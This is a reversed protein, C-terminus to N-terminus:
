SNAFFEELRKHMAEYDFNDARERLWRVLDDGKEYRFRELEELIEDTGTLSFEDAAASLRSLLERDPEERVEKEEPAKGADWEDLLEKLRGILEMVRRWLEGHRSQVVDLKGAKSALELERALAATEGACVANCAGKLGHVEIAYEGLSTELHTDMKELLSPSNDVFSKLIPLYTATSNGYLALAAEFDVGEVPHELLWRNGAEAKVEAGDGSSDPERTRNEEIQKDRVWQKLVMDLRKIDIPKSIFDNFGNALFIERNGAIANATLAVIPAERAYESGIEERIIRTTEMGDMEPMMHDMFVVDYREGRRIAEVAERGRLMTEVKLGYPMLLGTMVDLNTQLDDVVLVKGYPMWSRVFGNGCNRDREATFRLNMLNEVTERGIEGEEVIGQPLRVRFVSGKGYESAAEIEGGMRDVLGKAISLGLGTGEIKRNADGEFQVYELFVKEIDQKKIGRGTDEVTFKLWADEGAREWGITFRIEGKETYKFANSLLNTLIQKVRVEDGYLKSPITEDIDLKFEIPKSGMRTTNLQITDNILSSFEYAVPFIEFNGSEIKSIDLIDNVIELLLVGSSHIKELNLRTDGPIENQLEVESLGLIANLPTRIEHSVASLFKTKSINEQDARRRAIDLWVVLAGMCMITTVGAIIIILIKRMVAEYQEISVDAGVLGLFEGNHIDFVPAYASMLTGWITTVFDGRSPSRTDYARRRTVTLPEITGPSAFTDTGEKEGDFLYMMRDESVRVEVYLFAISDLNGFRIKEIMSKTQIYYDSGTDLSERFKRYDEPNEELISALSSAIGFCKNTLQQKMTGATIFYVIIDFIIIASCFFCVTCIYTFVSGIKKVPM